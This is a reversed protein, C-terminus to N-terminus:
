SRAQCAPRSQGSRATSSTSGRERSRGASPCPASTMRTAATGHPRWTYTTEMPFPGEATRMVPREGPVLDIIEYTYTLRRGLFHAVFNMRSGVAAASAHAM